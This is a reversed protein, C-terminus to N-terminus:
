DRAPDFCGNGRAAGRLDAGRLHIRAPKCRSRNGASFRASSITRNATASSPAAPRDAAPGTDCRAIQRGSCSCSDGSHATLGHGAAGSMSLIRVTQAAPSTRQSVWRRRVRMTLKRDGQVRLLDVNYIQPLGDVLSYYTCTWYWASSSSPMIYMTQLQGFRLRRGRTDLGGFLCQRNHDSISRFAISRPRLRLRTTNSRQRQDEVLYGVVDAVFQASGTPGNYRVTFGAGCRWGTGAGAAQVVTTNGRHRGRELQARQDGTEIPAVGSLGTAAATPSVVDRHCRSRDPLQRWRESPSNGCTTGSPGAIGGRGAWDFAAGASYFLFNRTTGALIQGASPAHSSPVAHNTFVQDTITSGLKTPRQCRVRDAGIANRM